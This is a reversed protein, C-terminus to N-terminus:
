RGILGLQASIAQGLERNKQRHTTPYEIHVAGNFDLQDYLFVMERYCVPCYNLLLWPHLSLLDGDGKVLVCENSPHGTTVQEEVDFVPNAGIM